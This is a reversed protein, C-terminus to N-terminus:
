STPIVVDVTRSSLVDLAETASSASLADYGAESLAACFLERLDANDEVVMVAFM